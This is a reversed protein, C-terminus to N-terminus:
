LLILCQNLRTTLSLQVFRFSAKLRQPSLDDGQPHSDASQSSGRLVVHLTIPLLRILYLTVGTDVIDSRQTVNDEVSQAAL